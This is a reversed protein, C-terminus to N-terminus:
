YKNVYKIVGGERKQFIYRKFFIIYRCKHRHTPKHRCDHYGHLGSPPTLVGPAPTPVTIIWRNHTSPVSCLDELLTVLATLWQAVEGAGSDSKVGLLEQLKKCIHKLCYVVM